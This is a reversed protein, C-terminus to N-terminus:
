SEVFFIFIEERKDSEGCAFSKEDWKIDVKIVRDYRTKVIEVVGCFWMFRSDEVEDPYLFCM